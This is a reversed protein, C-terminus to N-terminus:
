VLDQLWPRLLRKIIALAIVSVSIFLFSIWNGDLAFGLSTGAAPPHETNTVVMTFMSLAVSAASLLIFAIQNAPFQCILYYFGIGILASIIHSGILNWSRATYSAPTLFAIFMSSGLAAVLVGRGLFRIQSLIIALALFALVTQLIFHKPDRKLKKDLHLWLKNM